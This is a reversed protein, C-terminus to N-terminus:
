KTLNDRNCWIVIARIALTPHTLHYFTYESFEAKNAINRPSTHTGHSTITQSALLAQTGLRSWALRTPQPRERSPCDNARPLHEYLSTVVEYCADLLRSHILVVFSSYAVLMRWTREVRPTIKFWYKAWM